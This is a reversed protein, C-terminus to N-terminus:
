KLVIARVAEMLDVVESRRVLSVSEGDVVALCHEGDHRYLDIQVEPFNENDLFVTLGIEKRQSPRQGTFEEATLSELASQLDEIELAEGQCSWVREGGDKESTLTYRSGDLSVELERVDAFDAWFVEAHRLDDCSVAMLERYRDGSIQYLIRSEGIRVYARETEGEEEAMSSKTEADRSIHVTVTDEEEDRGEDEPVYTVTVSLEPDDMGYRNLEEESANYVVYNDLSISRLLWLYSDVRSTDLPLNRGNQRIFYVDNASYADPSDEQYVVRLNEGGTFRIERVSDLPPIEDNEILRNLTTDFDNLPDSQALYVRGDGISVYRQADMQSYDGLKIEYSREETELSIACVPDDLGYQGFDEVDEIVFAARFSQFRELLTHIAEGSVPFAEDGDYIWADEKHFALATEGCEWSLATVAEEPIELIVEGSTKIREQREELRLLLLTAASVAALLILLVCLRKSRNM